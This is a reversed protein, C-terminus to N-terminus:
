GFTPPVSIQMCFRIKLDQVAGIIRLKLILGAANKRDNRRRGMIAQFDVTDVATIAVLRAM